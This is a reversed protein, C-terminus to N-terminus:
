SEANRLINGNKKKKQLFSHGAEQKTNVIYALFDHGNKLPPNRGEVM